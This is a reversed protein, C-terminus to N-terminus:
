QEMDDSGEVAEEDEEEDEDDGDDDVGSIWLSFVQLEQGSSSLVCATRRKKRGNLAIGPQGRGVSSFTIAQSRAITLLQPELQM